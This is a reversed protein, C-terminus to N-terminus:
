DYYPFGWLLIPLFKPGQILRCVGDSGLADLQQWADLSAVAAAGERTRVRTAIAVQLNM